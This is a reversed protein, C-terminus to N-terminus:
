KNVDVVIRGQVRGAVIKTAAAPIDTLGITSSVDVWSDSEMLAALRQWLEARKSNPCTNSDVGLLNAGRLIFPFVTTALEHGSALGCVAVSAHRKLQAIITELTKSGVSDIAGAWMASEMAHKPGASLVSRDIVDKAGLQRLYDHSESKGTSATVDYGLSSLIAVSFSGVGGSAGSVLVNGATPILGQHELGAVAIMATLGATGATMAGFPTMHPPLKVLWDSAVWQHQSYGGHHDEGIGWGTGIVFDGKRFTNGTATEIIEGVLDIGPVFPFESRVIRGKGTVALGDKYNLSSYLIKVLTDGQRPLEELPRVPFEIVPESKSGTLLLSRNTM